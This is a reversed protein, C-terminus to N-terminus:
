INYIHISIAINFPFFLMNSQKQEVSSMTMNRKITCTVKEPHHGIKKKITHINFHLM